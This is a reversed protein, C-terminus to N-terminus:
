LNEKEVYITKIQWPKFPLEIKGDKVPLAQGNEEAMTSECAFRINPLSVTCTQAKGAGEYFRLIMGPKDEAAKVATLVVTPSSVLLSSETNEDQEGAAYVRLPNNFSQAAQLLDSEEWSGGYCLLGFGFSNKGHQSSTDDPIMGAYAEVPARLLTTFLSGGSIEVGPVGDNILALGQKGDEMAAFRQTPWEGKRNEGSSYARRRVTGFPIEFIGDGAGVLTTNLKLRLRKGEAQWDTDVRLGVVPEGPRVSFVLEWAADVEGTPREFTGSLVATHADIRRVAMPKAGAFIESSCINEIQFNGLDDQMVLLDCRRDLITRGSKRDVLTVGECDDLTLTVFENELTIKGTEVSAEEVAAPCLTYIKSACADVDAHIWLKGEAWYSEADKAAAPAASPVSIWQSRRFPLGNVVRLFRTDAGIESSGFIEELAFESMNSIAQLRGLVNHYQATPTSGTFVDHFQVFALNWWAEEFSIGCPLGRLVREKEAELLLTEARRNYLRIAARNSYTGTFEPNLDASEVPFTLGSARLDEFFAAPNSFEAVCGAERAEEILKRSRLLTMPTPYAEDEISACVMIPGDKQCRRVHAFLDDLREPAVVFEFFIRSREPEPLNRSFTDRGCVLLETGDLGKAMFLEHLKDGGFRTGIMNHMHFDAFVQPVQAHCGFADTIWATRVDAGMEKRFWCLGLLQNRIMSEACPMNTDMTSIMGGVVEIRGEEILPKLREVLDPRRKQLERYHWAQEIMYTMDPNRELLDLLLVTYQELYTEYLESTYHWSLDVHCNGMIHYKKM